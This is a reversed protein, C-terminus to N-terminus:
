RTARIGQHRAAKAAYLAEDARAVTASVPEGRRPQAAGCSYTVGYLLQWELALRRLVADTSSPAGSRLVVAFEDGGIRCVVDGRVSYDLAGAFSVLVQDGVAHGHTDNVPKFDDLDLLLLAGDPGLEAAAKLFERRNGLGTLPDTRSARDLRAVARLRELVQGTQTSLLELADDHSRSLSRGVDSWWVILVGLVGGEGSVPVYLISGAGFRQVFRQALLSSAPANAIFIREGTRVCQTVGSTEAAVDIQAGPLDLGLGAGAVGSFSSSGLADSLMMIAGDAELLEGALDTALRAVDTTSSSALLQALGSYLQQLDRHQTRAHAAAAATLEGLLALAVIAGLIEVQQESQRGILMAAITGASLLFGVRLSWGPPQTVAVYAFLVAVLPIYHQLVGALGATGITLVLVGVLAPVATTWGPLRAWPTVLCLVAGVLGLVLLVVQVERHSSSLTPMVALGYLEALLFLATALLGHRRRTEAPTAAELVFLSTVRDAGVGTGRRARTM